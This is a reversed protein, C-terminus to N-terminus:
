RQSLPASLEKLPEGKRAFSRYLRKMLKVPYLKMRNFAASVLLGRSARTERRVRRVPRGKPVRLGKRWTGKTARRVRREPHAKRVKLDKHAQQVRRARYAKSAKHERRDLLVRRGLIVRRGPIAAALRL